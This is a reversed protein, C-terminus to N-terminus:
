EEENQEKYKQYTECCAKIADVAEELSMNNYETLQGKKLSCPNDNLPIRKLTATSNGYGATIGLKELFQNETIECAYEKGSATKTPLNIIKNSMLNYCTLGLMSFVGCYLIGKGIKKILKGKLFKM